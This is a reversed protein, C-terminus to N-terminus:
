NIHILSFQKRDPEIDTRIILMVRDNGNLLM